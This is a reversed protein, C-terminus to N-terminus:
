PRAALWDGLDLLQRVTEAGPEGPDTCWGVALNAVATWRPHHTALLTAATLRDTTWGGHEASELTAAVLLLKRAAARAVAAVEATTQAADLESRWQQ